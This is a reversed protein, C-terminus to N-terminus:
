ACVESSSGLENGVAWYNIPRTRRRAFPDAAAIEKEKEARRTKKASSTAGESRAVNKGKKTSLSADTQSSAMGISALPDEAVRKGVDKSVRDVDEAISLFAERWM